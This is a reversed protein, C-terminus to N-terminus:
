RVHECMEPPTAQFKNKMMKFACGIVSSYSKQFSTLPYDTFVSVHIEVHVAEKINGNGKVSLFYFIFFFELSHTCHM